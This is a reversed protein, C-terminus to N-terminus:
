GSTLTVVLQWVALAVPVLVLLVLARGGSASSPRGARRTGVAFRGMGEIQGEVTYPSHRLEWSGPDPAPGTTPGRRASPPLPRKRRQTM